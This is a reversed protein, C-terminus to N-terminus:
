VGRGAQTRACGHGRTGRGRARGQPREEEWAPPGPERERWSPGPGSRVPVSVGDGQGCSVIM